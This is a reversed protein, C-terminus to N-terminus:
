GLIIHYLRSFDVVKFALTETRYNSMDRFTVPLNVWILPVYQKGPVVGYFLHPSSKLQDHALGLVEFTNIYMLNLGSGRDMHAMTLRTMGVLPDVILPFRGPKPISDLHDTRAFTILSESWHLYELVTPGIVNIVRGILKLKRQSEHPHPRPHGVM